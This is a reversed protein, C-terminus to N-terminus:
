QDNLVVDSVKYTRDGDAIMKSMDTYSSSPYGATENYTTKIEVYSRDLAKQIDDFVGDVTLLGGLLDPNVTSERMNDNLYTASIVQGNRVRISFPGRYSEPCFCIRELTMDYNISEGVFANWKARHSDLESQVEAANYTPTDQHLRM